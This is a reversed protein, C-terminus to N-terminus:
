LWRTRKKDNTVVGARSFLSLM